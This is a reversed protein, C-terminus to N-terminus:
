KVTLADTGYVVQNYRKAGDYFAVIFLVSIFFGVVICLLAMIPVFLGIYTGVDMMVGMLWFVWIAKTNLNAHHKEELEKMGALVMYNLFLKMATTILGLLLSGEQPFNSTIGFFDLLWIAAAYISMILSIDYCKSFRVSESRLRSMGKSLMLMGLFAPILNIVHNGINLTLNMNLFVLGYFLLNM